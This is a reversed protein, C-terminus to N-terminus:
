QVFVIATHLAGGGNPNFVFVALTVYEDAGFLPLTATPAM